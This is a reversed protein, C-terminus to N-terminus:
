QYRPMLPNGLVLEAIRELDELTYYSIEIKGKEAAGSIKVKTGLHGKFQDCLHRLDPPLSDKLAKQGLKGKKLSKVLEETQRVSLRKGLVIGRAKLQLKKDDLACLARAHGATLRKAQVDDLIEQPLSLLRLANAVTSREKGLKKALADQQYNHEDLLRKYAIAEDIPNLEERQINEILAVELASHKSPVRTLCPVKALGCLKAARWRREGAIIKYKGASEESVVLPQIIGYTQISSALEALSIDDFNQRPQNEMAFLQEVELQLVRDEQIEGDRSSMKSEGRWTRALNSEDEADISLDNEFETEGREKSNPPIFSGLGRGLGSHRKQM